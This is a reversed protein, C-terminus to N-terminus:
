ENARTLFDIRRAPGDDGEELALQESEDKLDVGSLKRRLAETILYHLKHAAARYSLGERRINSICNRQADTRGVRPGFTLYVGLSDPSSLGPREGVLLVALSAGLLAGIEDAVAVRGQEVLIVPAITLKGQQLSPRIADLLPVAHRQTAQASLGDAIVFAIDPRGQLGAALVELRERSAEDLRRGLDPRQLYVARDPAASSLCLSDYGRAELETALAQVDLRMHVADRALAHARQFALHPATPLSVGARGLAIRADTFRRLFGWPNEAVPAGIDPLQSM